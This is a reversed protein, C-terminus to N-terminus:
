WPLKFEIFKTLPQANTTIALKTVIVPEVTVVVPEVTVILLELAVTGM